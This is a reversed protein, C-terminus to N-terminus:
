EETQETRDACGELVHLQIGYRDILTQYSSPLNRDTIIESVRKLHESRFFKSMGFKDAELRLYVRKAHEILLRKITIEEESYECM